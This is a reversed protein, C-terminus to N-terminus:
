RIKLDTKLSRFKEIDKRMLYKLLRKRKGVMQLLGRRSHNDKPHTKFHGNLYNIRATLIAIQVETSGSDKDNKGFKEVIEHIDQKVYEM